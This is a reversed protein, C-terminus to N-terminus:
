RCLLVSAFLGDADTDWRAVRLGAEAARERMLEPTYKCSVETRVEEGAAFTFSREGVAVTQERSSVLRMEIWRNHEDYFARHSWGDVDFNTGAHRNLVRLMNLNFAATVGAADNYARELVAPDKVLDVGVLFGDDEAMGAAVDRMFQRAAEPQLNGITGGFFIILRPGGGPGAEALDSIFDGVISHFELHPYAKALVAVSEGAFSENVDLM